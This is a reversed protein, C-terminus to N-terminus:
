KAYDSRLLLKLIKDFTSNEIFYMKFFLRHSRTVGHWLFNYKTDGSSMFNSEM